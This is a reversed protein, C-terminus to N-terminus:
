RRKHIRWLHTALIKICQSPLLRRQTQYLHKLHLVCLCIEIPQLQCWCAHSWFLGDLAVYDFFNCLFLHLEMFSHSFCLLFPMRYQPFFSSKIKNSCELTRHNEYCLLGINWYRIVSFRSTFL